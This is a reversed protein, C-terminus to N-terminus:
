GPSNFLYEWGPLPHGAADRFRDFGDYNAAPGTVRDKAVNTATANNAIPTTDAQALPMVATAGVFAAFVPVILRFCTKM